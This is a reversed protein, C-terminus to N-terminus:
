FEIEHSSGQQWDLTVSVGVKPDNVTVIGTDQVKAKLIKLQGARLPQSLALVSETITGDAVPVYVHWEWLTEPANDSLFPEETEEVVRTGSRYDRSPFHVSAFCRQTGAEVQLDDTRVFANGTFTWTSDALNFGDAMGSVFAQITGIGIADATELVLATAANVITLDMGIRQDHDPQITLLTRGSFLGTRHADAFEKEAKQVLRGAPWAADEVLSVPGNGAVNAVATHPITGADLYLSVSFQEKDKIDALHHLRPGSEEYFSLDVDHAVDNFIGQLYAQLAKKVPADAETPLVKELEAQRNTTLRLRYDISLSGGCDSLDEDVLCCGSLLAAGLLVIATKGVSRNM